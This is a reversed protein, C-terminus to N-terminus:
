VFFFQYYAKMYRSVDPLFTHYLFPFYRNETIIVTMNKYIPMPLHLGNIVYRMVNQNQFLTNIVYENIKEVTSNTPTLFLTHPNALINVRVKEETINDDYLSVLANENLLRLQRHTPIGARFSALDHLFFIHYCRHLM